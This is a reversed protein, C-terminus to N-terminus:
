VAQQHLTTSGKTYQCCILEDVAHPTQAELGSVRAALAQFFTRQDASSDRVAPGRQAHRQVHDPMVELEEIEAQHEERVEHVIHKLRTAIASV